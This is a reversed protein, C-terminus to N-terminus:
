APAPADESGDSPTAAAEPCSQHSQIAAYVESRHIPVSKPAEIGLRVKDGRIELVTIVIADDVVISENKKRSLVLM